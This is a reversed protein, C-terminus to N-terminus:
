YRSLKAASWRWRGDLRDVVRFNVSHTDTCLARHVPKLRIVSESSLVVRAPLPAADVTHHAHTHSNASHLYRANVAMEEGGNRRICPFRLRSRDITRLRVPFLYRARSLPAPAHIARGGIRRLAKVQPIAWFRSGEMLCFPGYKNMPPVAMLRDM